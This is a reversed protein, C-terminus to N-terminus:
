SRFRVSSWVASDARPAGLWRHELRWSQRRITVLCLVAVVGALVMLVKLVPLQAHVDAYGAGFVVGRHSVLLDFMALRYGIAKLLLVLAALVLLHGRARRAITLGGPIVQMGRTCFYVAITALTALLLLGLLWGYLANWFPLHFLYFAVDQDFLPDRIGFLTPHLAKLVLEWSGTGLWGAILALTVSVPLSMRHLSPELVATSPLTRVDDVTVLADRPVLWQARTVNGYLILFCAVGIVVGLLLQTRLVTVFVSTLQVEHFWLWDIYLGILQGATSLIICAILVLLLLLLGRM